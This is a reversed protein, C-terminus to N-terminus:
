KINSRKKRSKRIALANSSASEGSLNYIGKKYPTYSSLAKQSIDLRDMIEWDSRGEARLEKIKDYTESSYVGATILIKRAKQMSINNYQSIETLSLGSNYCKVIEDVDIEKISSIDVNPKRDLTYGREQEEPSKGPLTNESDNQQQAPFINNIPEEKEDEYIDTLERNPDSVINVVNQLATFRQETITRMRSIHHFADDIRNEQLARYIHEITKSQERYWADGWKLLCNKQGQFTKKKKLQPSISKRKL